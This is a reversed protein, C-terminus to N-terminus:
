ENNDKKYLIRIIGLDSDLVSDYPVWGMKKYFANARKNCEFCELYLTKYDSFKQRCMESIFYKAAGSGQYNCDIMIMHLIDKKWNCMGIIKNDAELVQMTQINDTIEKTFEDSLMFADVMDDDLYQRSNYNTVRTSIALLENKDKEKAKRILYEM